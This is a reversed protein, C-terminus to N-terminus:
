FDLLKRNEMFGKNEESNRVIKLFISCIQAGKISSTHKKCLIKLILM